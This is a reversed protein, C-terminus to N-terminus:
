IVGLISAILADVDDQNEEIFDAFESDTGSLDLEWKGPSTVKLGIEAEWDSYPDLCSIEGECSHLNITLRWEFQELDLYNIAASLEVYDVPEYGYPTDPM